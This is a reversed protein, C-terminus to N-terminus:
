MRAATGLVLFPCILHIWTKDRTKSGGLSRYRSRYVRTFDVNRVMKVVGNRVLIVGLVGVFGQFYAMEEFKVWFGVKLLSVVSCIM